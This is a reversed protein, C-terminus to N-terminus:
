NVFAQELSATLLEVVRLALADTLDNAQVSVYAEIAHTLADVGITATVKPPVSVTLAPDVIAVDALLYEHTIVDKTSPLSLVSIDTVESGTGATTPMLVTPLGRKKIKKSGTLNLYDKVDGEHVALVAALKALDLTSGGGIELVLDFNHEKMYDVLKQACNLSPEMEFDTYFAIHRRGEQVGQLAGEVIGLEVLVNDTICLINEAKYFDVVEVLKNKAGWGTFSKNPFSFTSVPM